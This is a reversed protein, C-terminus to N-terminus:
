KGARKKDGASVLLFKQHSPREKRLFGLKREKKRGGQGKERTLAGWVM